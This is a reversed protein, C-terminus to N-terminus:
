VLQNQEFNFIEDWTGPNFFQYQLLLLFSLRPQSENTFVWHLTMTFNDTYSAATSHVHYMYMTALFYTFSFKFIYQQVSTAVISFNDCVTVLIRVQPFKVLPQMSNQM